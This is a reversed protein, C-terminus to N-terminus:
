TAHPVFRFGANVGWDFPREGGLGSLGNIFFGYHSTFMKGVELEVKAPIIDKKYDYTVRTDLKVWKENQLVKDFVLRFETKNVNNAKNYSKFHKLLPTVYLGQRKSAFQIGLTPAIQDSGTGIGKESNSFDLRWEVGIGFKINWDENLKDHGFFYVPRIRLTEFDQETSGTNNTIFYHLEYDLRLNPHVLSSGEISMDHTDTSRDKTYEWILDIKSISALPNSAISGSQEESDSTQAATQLPIVWASIICSIIITLHKLM